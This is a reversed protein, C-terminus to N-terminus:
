LTCLAELEDTERGIHEQTCALGPDPDSVVQPHVAELAAAATDAEIETVCFRFRTDGIRIEDGESLPMPQAIRQDNLRTGNMTDCDRLIWQGNEWVIEAHWRSSHEDNLVISNTRNRGLSTVQDVSLPHCACDRGSEFTLRPRM